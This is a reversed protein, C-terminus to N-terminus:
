KLRNTNASKSPEQFVTSDNTSLESDPNIDCEDRFFIQNVLVSASSRTNGFIM